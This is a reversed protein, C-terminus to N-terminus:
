IYVTLKNKKKLHFGIAFGLVNMPFVRGFGGVTKKIM